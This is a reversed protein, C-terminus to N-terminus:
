IARHADKTVRSKLVLPKVRIPLAVDPYCQQIALMGEIYTAKDIISNTVSQRDFIEAVLTAAAKSKLAENLLFHAVRDKAVRAQNVASLVTLFYTNLELLREVNGGAYTELYHTAFLQVNRSPHQSLKTLYEVGDGKDFFQTMLERGFRQVDDFTNDCVGVITTANWHEATFQETFFRIGFQRCDDWESNLIRLADVAQAQILAINDAFAAMAWQRVSLACHNALVAWQKISYDTFEANRLSLAGFRQAAKSQANILRWRLNKDINIFPKELCTSILTVMDAHVGEYVEKRFFLPVLESFLTDAFDSNHEALRHIIPRVATRIAATESVCYSQLLAQRGLLEDDNCKILLSVAAGQLAEHESENFQQLVADPIDQMRIDSHLLLQSAFLQVHTNTNKLLVDITAFKIRKLEDIFYTVLVSSVDGIYQESTKSGSKAVADIIQQLLNTKDGPSLTVKSMWEIAKEHVVSCESCLAQAFLALDSKLIDPQDALWQVAQHRAPEYPSSLCASILATDANEADYLDVALALAFATTQEYNLALLLGITKAELQRCYEPNAALAKVAFAHVLSCQSKLLLQLPAKPQEDWLAPFAEARSSDASDSVRQWANRSVSLQHQESRQYLISNFALFGPFRDYHAVSIIETERTNWNWQTREVTKPEQGHEDTVALLLGSAMDVYASNGAEGLKRLSRWSRRRLYNKTSTQFPERWYGAETTEILLSLQGFVPGDLRFESLKYIHRYAKFYNRNSFHGVRLVNLVVSHCCPYFLALSYLTELLTINKKDSSLLAALVRESLVTADDAEISRRLEQSLANKLTEVAAQKQSEGALHLYVEDAIRKVADDQSKQLTVIAPLHTVDGCRGLAWAVSYAIHRDSVASMTAIKDAAETVELEGARWIIRSLPWHGPPNDLYTLITQKLDTTNDVAAPEIVPTLVTNGEAEQYGKNVKSVVLSNFIQEAKDLSVPQPTKTSERLSAGFRGYRFNVVFREAGSVPSECLDAYYVKDSNGQTFRLRAKRIVKM